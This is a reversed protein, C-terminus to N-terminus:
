NLAAVIVENFSPIDKPERSTILNGDIVVPKNEIRAGAYYLDPQVTRYATMTRGLVLGTPIMLQPGHCISFLLKNTALFHKTFNVFREDARLQDPSFGGPIFLADFDSPAVDGISKDIDIKTGHKGTVAETSFSITTVSAGSEKLAKVPDTFEIDEVLDTVLVAVKKSM